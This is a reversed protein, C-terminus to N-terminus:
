LKTLWGKSATPKADFLPIYPKIDLIPTGEIADFGKVMLKNGERKMLNVVAHGFPNPRHPSRAAFLGHPMSDWPTQVM